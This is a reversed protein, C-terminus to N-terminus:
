LRAAFEDLRGHDKLIQNTADDLYTADWEQYSEVQAFRTSPPLLKILHAVPFRVPRLQELDYGATARFCLCRRRAGDPQRAARRPHLRACHRPHNSAIHRDAFSRAALPLPGAAVPAIERDSGPSAFHSPNQKPLGCYAELAKLESSQTYCLHNRAPPQLTPLALTSVVRIRATKGPPQPASIGVGRGGFCIGGLCFTRSRSASCRM